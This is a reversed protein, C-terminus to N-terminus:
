NGIKGGFIQEPTFSEQTKINIIEEVGERYSPSKFDLDCIGFIRGDSYIFIWVPSSMCCQKVVHKLSM